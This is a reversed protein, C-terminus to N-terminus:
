GVFVGGGYGPLADFNFLVGFDRGRYATVGSGGGEGAGSLLDSFKDGDFDKAALRVGGRNETDGAFFNAIPSNLAAGVGQTLLTRGSVILVRPAGGPGAGGAIDGFGDGDFDGVTVYAGNRLSEEFMFFDGVPRLIRGQSLAAGDYISIRPGGSFGASIVIQAFGDGNLDGAGARAGGRFNPDDIGFFNAIRTFTGGRLVTVRPGGGEDPTIIIESVGDGTIDGTTVFLGGKFDEFPQLNLVTQGTAGDIVQVTATITPGTGVVYDPVGDGTVDAV